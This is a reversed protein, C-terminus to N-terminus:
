PNIPQQASALFAHFCFFLLQLTASYCPIHISLKVDNAYIFVVTCEAHLSASLICISLVVQSLSPSNRKLLLGAHKEVQWLRESPFFPHWVTQVPVVFIQSMVTWVAPLGGVVLECWCWWRRGVCLFCANGHQSLVAVNVCAFMVKAATTRDTPATFRIDLAHPDVCLTYVWDICACIIGAPVAAEQWPFDGGM